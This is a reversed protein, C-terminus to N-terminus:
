FKTSLVLVAINILFMFSFIASINVGNCKNKQPPNWTIIQWECKMKTIM